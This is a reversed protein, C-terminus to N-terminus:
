KLSRCPLRRPFWNECLVLYVPQDKNAICSQRRRKQPIGIHQQQQDDNNLLVILDQTNRRWWGPVRGASSLSLSSCCSSSPPIGSHHTGSSLPWQYTKITGSFYFGHSLWNIWRRRTIWLRALELEGNRKLKCKIVTAKHGGGLEPRSFCHRHLDWGEDEAVEVQLDVILKHIVFIVTKTAPM